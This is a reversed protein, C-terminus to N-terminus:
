LADLAQRMDEIIDDPHEIGIAYRVLNVPIGAVKMQEPTLTGAWMAAAHIVLSDVGGLSPAQVPLKLLSVLRSAQAYDGTVMFSVIGGFGHMQRKALEHQPHSSLGPYLVKEVKPHQQLMEALAQGNQNVRKMRMPFTRLGRLLLFADMPSLVSGLTIHTKWIKAALERSTCVVGATLDHHGGLYKTASQVVIDVGLRHPRQNFPTALTNDALTLIGKAKAVTTIAEIDTIALMPNSPTELTIMRTNPRIADIFAQPNAQDVLTIEVGFNRLMEDLIRSTSMYHRTQGIVHDGAKVFTLISASIAGMGSGMVLATQTEEFEALIAKLREHGPNGYRTYNRPHQPVESMEIFEEPSDARFVASYHISPAVTKDDTVGYDAHIALTDFHPTM